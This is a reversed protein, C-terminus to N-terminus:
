KCYEDTKIKIVWDESELLHNNESFSYYGPAPGAQFDYTEGAKLLTTTTSFSTKGPTYKLSPLNQWQLTGTLRFRGFLEQTPLKSADIETCPFQLTIQVVGTLVVPLPSFATIDITQTEATCADVAGSAAVVTSAVDAIRLRVQQDSDLGDIRIVQGNNVTSQFSMLRAKTDERIVECNYLRTSNPLKSKLQFLLSSPCKVIPKKFSTIDITQVVTNCAEAAASTAVAASSIDSIRLRITEDSYLGNVRIVEGNNVTTQFSQMVANTAANIVQCNYRLDSNPLNSKVRFGISSACKPAPAKFNLLELTIVSGNCAEVPSSAVVASSVLDFIRFIISGTNDYLGGLRIIDNNNVTSQFVQLREKTDAKLVECTYSRDSNPLNSRIRFGPSAAYRQPPRKFSAVDLAQIDTTCADVAESTVVASSVIDLIRLRVLQDSDLGSVRIIDGDNATTQFSQLKAKTVENIVECTYRYDSNPLSSKIRFGPGSSCKLIPKKFTALDLVQVEASCGNAIESLVTATSLNDTIRLRVFQDSELGSIKIVEGNNVTSQFVQLRAGGTENIVECLYTTSSVPLSSKIRFSPGTECPQKTFAAVWLSLHPLVAVCSLGGESSKVVKAYRERQWRDAAVDYSFLPISDGAQVLRRELPHYLQPSIGFNVSIPSSVTKVLQYKENHIQLLFAGALQTIRQDAEVGSGGLSVPHPITQNVIPMTLFTANPKTIDVSQFRATLKGSVPQAVVDKLTAGKTVLAQALSTTPLVPTVTQIVWEKSLSGKSDSSSESLRIPSDAGKPQLVMAVSRSSADRIEIPLVADVFGESKVAVTFRIPKAADPRGGLSDISLYLTGDSTVKFKKTKVTTILRNVDPGTLVVQMAPPVEGAATYFQVELAVPYPKKFAIVLGDIPNKCGTLLGLAISCFYGLQYKKIGRLHECIRDASFASYFILPCRRMWIQSYKRSFYLVRRLGLISYNAM